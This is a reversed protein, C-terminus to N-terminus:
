VNQNKDVHKQKAAFGASLDGSGDRLHGFGASLREFRCKFVLIVFGASLRRFRCKVSPRILQAKFLILRHRTVHRHSM